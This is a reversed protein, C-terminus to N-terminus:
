PLRAVLGIILALASAQSGKLTLHLLLADPWIGRHLDTSVRCLYRRPAINSQSTRHATRAPCFVRPGSWKRLSLGRKPQHEDRTGGGSLHQTPEM